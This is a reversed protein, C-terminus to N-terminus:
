HFEYNVTLGYTRPLGWLDVTGAINSIITHTRYEEDTVNRGWVSVGWPGDASRWSFSANLLGFGDERSGPHNSPEFFFDDQYTYGLYFDLNSGNALDFSYTSSLGWSNEPARSLRNGSFDADGTEFVDYTADLYGYNASLAWNERVLGTVDLELGKSTAEANAGVLLSGVLRFVQLDEYDMHFVSANVRVRNDALMAKVGFEYSTVKEPDLPSEAAGATTTSSVFAGSKYGEAAKLYLFSDDAFQWSLSTSPLFDSWSESATTSYPFNLAGPNGTGVFALLEGPGNAPIGLVVLEVPFGLIASLVASDFAPDELNVLAQAIDKEDRAYRGGFSWTLNDNIHYDIQGFLATSTTENDQTFNVDGNLLNFGLAAVPAFFAGVFREERDINEKMYFAGALWDFKGGGSSTWRFEQSFQDSNEMASDILNFPTEGWPMGALDEAWAYDTDRYSTISTFVSNDLTKDVHLLAGGTERTQFNRDLGAHVGASSACKRIDGGTTAAIVAPFFPALGLPDNLDLNNVNRCNGAQDDETWDLGFLIELSDSPTFLLQGRLSLNDQDHYEQGDTVNDVYGDRDRKSFSFKGSITDSLGGNVLGQVTRLSYNGVTLGFKGEFEHSPRRTFISVAGGAVNKGFLTGQPGRLVEVRDIDFLDTATGGGRGVYVEDIFTAVAPDSGASDLTNGIGRIFYQPEGVNFQTFTFNPTELAVDNMGTIQGERINEGSIANVSIPVEQLTQDRKQARVIVEELVYGYADAESTEQAQIKVNAALLVAGLLGFGLAGNKM